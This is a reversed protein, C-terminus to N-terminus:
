SSLLIVQQQRVRFTLQRPLYFMPNTRISASSQQQHKKSGTRAHCYSMLVLKDFLTCRDLKLSVSFSLEHQVFHAALKKRKEGVIHELLESCNFHSCHINGVQAGNLKQLKVLDFLLFSLIGRERLLKQQLLLLLSLSQRFSVNLKKLSVGTELWFKKRKVLTKIPLSKPAM